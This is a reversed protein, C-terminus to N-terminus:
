TNNITVDTNTCSSSIFEKLTHTKPLDSIQHGRKVHQINDTVFFFSHSKKLRNIKKYPSNTVEKLTRPGIELVM